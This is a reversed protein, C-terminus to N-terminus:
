RHRNQCANREKKGTQLWKIKKQRIARALFVLIFLLLPLVYGQKAGSKLPFARLKERNLIINVISKKEYTAKIRKLYPGEIRSQKLVKSM